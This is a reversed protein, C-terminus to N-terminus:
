DVGLFFKLDKWVGNGGEGVPPHVIDCAGSISHGRPLHIEHALGGERCSGTAHKGSIRCIEVLDGDVSEPLVADEHPGASAAKVVDVWLPLALESSYAEAVITRPQDFGLWVVCTVRGTYGAFWVDHCENTTGTKGAAPVALGFKSRAASGTGGPELVKRLVDDTFAAADPELLSEAETPARWILNGALDEVREIIRPRKVLGRNPFVTYAKALDLACTGVNGIFVQGTTKTPMDMGAQRALDVVPALGAFNGVRISMTNRSWILGKEVPQLGIYRGDANRPAWTSGPPLEDARLPSDDVLTGPLMGKQFALAYVFPKFVSGAQRRAMTARNFASRQYDRGGVMALIAGTSHDLVVCAGQLYRTSEEAKIQEPKKGGDVADKTPHAYGPRREIERARAELSRLAAAQLDGDITTYIQYGSYGSKELGLAENLEARLYDMVYGPTIRSIRSREPRIECRSERAIDAMDPNLRGTAVMRRLVADRGRLAAAPNRFPNSIGPSRLLGVLLAAEGQSLQTNSKGFVLHSAKELGHIGPIFEARNVFFTLIDDKTYTSEIRRSLAMELFKRHLTKERIGFSIRSLQMTITSAGQTFNMDLLNRWAARAVGRGDIGGHEYFRNDERALLAEVFLPSIQDRRLPLAAETEMRGIVRGQRDYVISHDPSRDMVALDYTSALWTYFTWVCVLVVLGLLMGYFVLSLLFRTFLSRRAWWTQPAREEPEPELEPEPAARRQTRFSRRRM